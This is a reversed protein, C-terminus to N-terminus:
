VDGRMRRAHYRTRIAIGAVMMALGSVIVVLALAGPLHPWLVAIAAGALALAMGVYRVWPVLGRLERRYAAREAPDNLNPPPRNLAAM